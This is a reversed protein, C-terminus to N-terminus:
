RDYLVAPGNFHWHLYFLSLPLPSGEVVSTYMWHKCPLSYRALLEYSFTCGINLDFEFEEEKGEKINDAMRKTASWELISLKLAYHTLTVTRRM